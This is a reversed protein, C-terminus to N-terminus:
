IVINKQNDPNLANHTTVVANATQPDVSTSSKDGHIVVRRTTKNSLIDKLHNFTDEFLEVEETIGIGPDDKGGSHPMKGLVPGGEYPVTFYKNMKQCFYLAVKTKDPYVRIAQRKLMLMLPPDQGPKLGQNENLEDFEPEIADEPIEIEEVISEKPAEHKRLETLQKM